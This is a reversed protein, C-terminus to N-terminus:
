QSRVYTLDGLKIKNENIFIISGTETEGNITTTIEDGNRTYTGSDGYSTDKSTNPEDGIVTCSETDISINYLIETYTGSFSWSTEGIDLTEWNITWEGAPIGCAQDYFIVYQGIPTGNEFTDIEWTGAFPNILNITVTAVESEGMSNTAMFTFQDIGGTVTNNPSYEFVGLSPDVLMVSGHVPQSNIVFGQAYESQLTDTVLSDIKVSVESDYALPLPNILNVTVTAEGSEGMSNTAVFSFSDQEGTATNNPTYKFVGLSDDLFTVTGQQPYSKLVFFQAYESLLTDTVSSDIEVSVQSDYVLPLPPFLTAEQNVIIGDSSELSFTFELTENPDEELFSFTLTALSDVSTITGEIDSTSINKITFLSPDNKEEVEYEHYIIDIWDQPILDVAYDMLGKLEDLAAQLENPVVYKTNIYLNKEKRHYFENISSKSSQFKFQDEGMLWSEAANIPDTVCSQWFVSLDTKLMKLSGYLSATGVIATAGGVLLGWGTSAVTGSISILYLSGTVLGADLVVERLAVRCDEIDSQLVNIKGQSSNNTDSILYTSIIRAFLQIEEESYNSLESITVELSDKANTLREKFQADDTQDILLQLDNSVSSLYNNSYSVPNEIIEYEQIEFSLVQEQEELEFILDHEGTSVEPVVFVLTKSESDETNLYLSVPTGDSLEASYEDENLSANEVTILQIEGPSFFTNDSNFSSSVQAPPPPTPDETDDSNTLGGGKKCGYIGVSLTILLLVGFSTHLYRNEM